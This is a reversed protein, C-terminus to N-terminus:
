KLKEISIIALEASNNNLLQRGEGKRGQKGGDNSYVVYLSGDHEIAYPYALKVKPHSEVEEGLLVADRIKFIKSFEKEGPRSIAITLPRRDNGSNSTTSSILYRQGTSLIGAYPKTAAMPMNSPKLKTWTEGFDRSFSVWALPHSYNEVKPTNFSSRAILLIDSSDVIISSEGWINADTPIKIVSWKKTIDSNNCIAVAPPNGNGVSFGAMIINGNKMKVPEQLPWFGDEAIIGRSSWTNTSKNWKFARTHVNNLEGDFSGMLSWMSNKDSYFVGHSIAGNELPKGVPILTDFSKLNKSQYSNAVEGATNEVGKNHGFSVFWSNEFNAIAVGHLFRYGDSEPEYKKITRFEVDKIQRIEEKSPVEQYKWIKILEEETVTGQGCLFNFNSIFLSLLLGWQLNCYYM